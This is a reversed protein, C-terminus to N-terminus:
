KFIKLLENLREQPSNLSALHMILYLDPRHYVLDSHIRSNLPLKDVDFDILLRKIFNQNFLIDNFNFRYFNWDVDTVCIDGYVEDYYVSYDESQEPSDWGNKRALNYLETLTM